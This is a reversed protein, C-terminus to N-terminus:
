IVYENLLEGTEKDLLRITSDLTSSLVCQSDQSFAVSTVPEGLYDTVLSGMRIDYNRVKCDVSRCLLCLINPILM